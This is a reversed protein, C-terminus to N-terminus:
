GGVGLGVDAGSKMGLSWGQVYNLGYPAVHM